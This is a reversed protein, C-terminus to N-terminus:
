FVSQGRYNLVDSWAMCMHVAPFNFIGAASVGPHFYNEIFNLFAVAASPFSFVWCIHYNVCFCTVDSGDKCCFLDIVCLGAFLVSAKKRCLMESRILLMMVTIM